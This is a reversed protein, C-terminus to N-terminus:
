FIPVQVASRSTPLRDTHKEQLAPLAGAPCTGCRSRQSVAALKGLKRPWADAPCMSCMKARASVPQEIYSALGAPRTSCLLATTSLWQQRWSALCSALQAQAACRLSAQHRRAPRGKCSCISLLLGLLRQAARCIQSPKNGMCVTISAMTQTDHTRSLGWTSM